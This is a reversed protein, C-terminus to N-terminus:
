IFLILAISLATRSNSTPRAVACTIPMSRPVSNQFAERIEGPFFRTITSFEREERLLWLPTGRTGSLDGEELADSVELVVGEGFPEFLGLGGVEIQVFQYFGEIVRIGKGAVDEFVPSVVESLALFRHAQLLQHAHDELVDLLVGALLGVRVDLVRDESHRRVPAELCPHRQDVCGCYALQVRQPEYVLVCSRGDMERDGSVIGLRDVDAEEVEAAM